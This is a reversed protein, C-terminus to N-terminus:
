PTNASKNAPLNDIKKILDKLASKLLAINANLDDYTEFIIQHKLKAMIQDIVTKNRLYDTKRGIIIKGVYKGLNKSDNKAIWDFWTSVQTIAEQFGKSPKNEIIIPDNNLQIEILLISGNSLDLTFDTKYIGIARSTKVIPKGNFLLFYYKELFSQLQQEALDQRTILLNLENEIKGIYELFTEVTLKGLNVSFIDKM